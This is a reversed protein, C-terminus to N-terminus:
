DLNVSMKLKDTHLILLKDDNELSFFIHIDRTPIETKMLDIHASGQIQIERHFNLLDYQLIHCCKPLKEKALTLALIFSTSIIKSM